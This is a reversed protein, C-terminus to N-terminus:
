WTMKGTDRDRAWNQSTKKTDKIAVNQRGKGQQNNRWIDDEKEDPSMIQESSLRRNKMYERCQM